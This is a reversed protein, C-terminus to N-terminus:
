IDFQTQLQALVERLQVVIPLKTGITASGDVLSIIVTTNDKFFSLADEGARTLAYEPGSLEDYYKVLASRLLAENVYSRGQVLDGTSLRSQPFDAKINNFIYEAANSVTDVTNLKEWTRDPNGATDTKYTTYVEGFIVANDAQNNGVVFAGADNLEAIETKTFGRGTDIVPLGTILTNAYPLSALATGGIYDLFSDGVSVIDAINAGDTLRLSRVGAIKSSIVYDLEFLSSGEYVNSDSVAKNSHIVLSQSNEADAATVINDKTDTISTIGVGNLIDDNTNFRPDLFDTIFTFGYSQPFVITQYRADGVVDFISTLNPETAGGSFATITFTADTDNQFIELGISNGESGGNDCTLTVTGAANSATVPCDADANVAAEIKDGVTTPTDSTTLAITYQHNPRSGVTFIVNGATSSPAASCTIDGSAQTAAGADDLPIADFRTELNVSRAARVMGALMSNQGFLADEEGANGINEILNGATASGAATKQGVFLVKQPANSVSLSAPLKNVKVKPFSVNTM